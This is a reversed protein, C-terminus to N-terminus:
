AFEYVKRVNLVNEKGIANENNKEEASDVFRITSGNPIKETESPNKILYDVFDFALNINKSMREEKTM